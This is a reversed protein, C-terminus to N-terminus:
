RAQRKKFGACFATGVSLLLALVTGFLVEDGTSPARGTQNKPADKASQQGGPAGDPTQEPEEKETDVRKEQIFEGANEFRNHNELSADVTNKFTGTNYLIGNNVLKGQNTMTNQNTIVGGPQNRATGANTVRGANVVSGHNVLSGNIQATGRETNYLTGQNVLTNEVFLRGANVLKGDLTCPGEIVLTGENVFEEQRGIEFVADSAVTYRSGAAIGNIRVTIADEESAVFDDDAGKKVYIEATGLGVVEIRGTYPDVTVVSSDSSRYEYAGNGEGGTVAPLSAPEGFKRVIDQKDSFGPRSQQAKKLVEVQFHLKSPAENGAQSVFPEGMPWLTVSFDYATDSPKLTDLFAGKLLIRDKDVLYDTGSALIRDGLRISEVTNGNLQVETVADAGSGGQVSLVPTKIVSDTYLVMGDSNIVTVNGAHDTLRAYVILKEDPLATWEFAETWPGAPNYAAASDAKQYQIGAIGSHADSAEIIIKQPGKAFVRFVPDANFTDYRQGAMQITGAPPTTDVKYRIEKSESIAGTRDNKLYYVATKDAGDTGDLLVASAWSGDNASDTLSVTFGEPATLIVQGTNLWGNEPENQIYATETPDYASVTFDGELVSNEEIRFQLAGAGTLVFAATYDGPRAPAETSHYETGNRGTYILRYDQPGPAPDASLYVSPVRPVGNYEGGCSSADVVVHLPTRDASGAAVPAGTVVVQEGTYGGAGTLVCMVYKGIDQVAPIYTTGAADPIRRWVGSEQPDKRDGLYWRYVATEQAPLKVSLEVGEAPADFGFTEPLSLPLGESWVINPLEVVTGVFNNVDCFLNELGKYDNGNVVGLQKGAENLSLQHNHVGVSGTLDGRINLDNVGYILLNSPQNTGKVYNGAIQASGWLEVRRTSANVYVGAGSEYVSDRGDANSTIKGGSMVLKANNRIEIGGGHEDATNDHILGGSMYLDATRGGTQEGDALIAGGVGNTRNFGIAGGYLNMRTGAPSGALYVAGGGEGFSRVRAENYAIWGNNMNIVGGEAAIAAGCGNLVHRFIKVDSSLNLTGGAVFVAGGNNGTVEVQNGELLIGEDNINTGLNLTANNEVYIMPGTTFSDARVLKGSGTITVTGRIRLTENVTATVGAPLDIVTERGNEGFIEAGLVEGDTITLDATIEAKTWFGGGALLGSMLGIAAAACLVRKWKKKLRIKM